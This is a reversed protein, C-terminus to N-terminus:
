STILALYTLINKAFLHYFSFIFTILLLYNGLCLLILQTYFGLLIGTKAGQAVSKAASLIPEDTSSGPPPFPLGSWYEQRSFGMYLPAQRAATCSNAFSDSVVSAALCVVFLRHPFLATCPSLPLSDAQWQGLCLLQPNRGLLSSGRSSSIAVQELIRAQFIGHVSSGPLSCGM